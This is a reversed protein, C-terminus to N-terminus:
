AISFSTSGPRIASRPATLFHHCKRRSDPSQAHNWFVTDTRLLVTLRQSRVIRTTVAYTDSHAIRWCGESQVTTATWCLQVVSAFPVTGQWLTATGRARPLSKAGSSFEPLRAIVWKSPVANAFAPVCCPDPGANMFTEQRELPSALSNVPQKWEPVPEGVSSGGTPRAGM